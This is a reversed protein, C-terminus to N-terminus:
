NAVQLETTKEAYRNKAEIIVPVINIKVCTMMLGWFVLLNYVHFFPLGFVFGDLIKVLILEALAKYIPDNTQLYLGKLYTRARVLSYLFFLVYPLGWRFVEQAWGIEITSRRVLMNSSVEITSDYTGFLGHGFLWDVYSAKGFADVLLTSRSNGEWYFLKTVDFDTLFDDFTKILSDFQYKDAVSQDRVESNETFFSFAGISYGVILLILLTIGLKRKGLHFISRYAFLAIYFGVLTYSRSWIKAAIFLLLFIASWGWLLYKENRPYLALMSVPILCNNLSLHGIWINYDPILVLSTYILAIGIPLAILSFKFLQRYSIGMRTALAMNLGYLLLLYYSGELIFGDTFTKFQFDVFVDMTIRVLPYGLTILLLPLAKQWTITNKYKYITVSSICTLLIIGAAAVYKLINISLIVGIWTFVSCVLISVLYYYITKNERVM